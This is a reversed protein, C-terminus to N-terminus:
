EGDLDVLLDNTFSTGLVTSFKGNADVDGVATILFWDTPITSPWTVAAGNISVVQTPTVGALGSQSTYGYMTTGDAHVPIAKWDLGANCATSPCTAGWGVKYNGPEKVSAMSAHPYLSAHNTSQNAALGVSVNAYTGSEAHFAEQAVRIANVMHTAEATHSANTLKRYGVVAMMSLIAVIAVVIMLEVLTFGARRRRYNSAYKLAYKSTSALPSCTISKVADTRKSMLSLLRRAM